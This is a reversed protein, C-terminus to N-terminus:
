IEAYFNDMLVRNGHVNIEGQFGLRDDTDVLLTDM